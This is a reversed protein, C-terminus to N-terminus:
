ISLNIVKEWTKGLGSEILFFKAGPNSLRRISKAYDDTGIVSPVKIVEKNHGNYYCSLTEQKHHHFHGMLLIDIDESHYNEWFSLEASEDKSGDGHIACINTGLVQMLHNDSFPLIIIDKNDKIKLRIFENIVKGVNEKTFNKKQNLFRAQDHNGGVNGYVIRIQLRKQLCQLFNAIMDAYEIVSDITGTDMKVLDSLRNMGQIADGLDFVYLRSYKFNDYSEITEELLKQFREHAIENDYEIIESHGDDSYKVITGYHVDGFAIIGNKNESVNSNVENPVTFQTSNLNKVANEVQENFLEYKAKERLNANYERNVYSTKMREIKLRETAEKINELVDSDCNEIQDDDMKEFFSDLFLACRRLNEESYHAYGVLQKAWDEFSIKRDLADITLQRAKTLFNEM